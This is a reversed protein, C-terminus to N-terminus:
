SECTLRNSSPSANVALARGISHRNLRTKIATLPLNLRNRCLFWESDLILYLSEPWKNQWEGSQGRRFPRLNNLSKSNIM